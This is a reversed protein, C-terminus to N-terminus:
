PKRGHGQSGPIGKGGAGPASAPPGRGHDQGQGQGQSQGQGRGQGHAEGPLRRLEDPGRSLAATVRALAQASPMGEQVLQTLVAIAVTRRDASAERALRGLAAPEVGADLADAGVGLDAASLAPPHAGGGMADRAHELAVLRREVATAIRDAPVGKARGEAVKGDLLSVPIGASAARQRAAEIRQEPTGQGAAGSLPALLLAAALLLRTM